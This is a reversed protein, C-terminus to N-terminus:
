RRRGLMALRILMRETLAMAPATQSASRLQLDTDTILVLAEELKYMGWDQAQRLVRDRRPGFVPPRVRGIGAGPGGPDSAVTHLTRFHRMAGICLSVANTGQAQLKSLVPGIEAVRAEAVLNLVDDVDAETSQPACAEIEEPTLPTADNRKYLVIKELLQRFDGPALMRSLNTLAAMGDAPIASLGAESMMREIEERSPPDDYIGVAYANKHGEFLKRLKSTPKLAGATVIIQADGHQWDQLAAEIAPFTQDTAGEVFAARQGPFFGMAKVADVLPAADKRLEGAQLRTLRMEEEGTEGILAKIVEARKLAVRMADAGYILLGAKDTDPKRFYGAADRASLKM